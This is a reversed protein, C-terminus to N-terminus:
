KKVNKLRKGFLYKSQYFRITRPASVTKIDTYSSQPMAARM